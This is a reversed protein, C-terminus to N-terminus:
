VRRRRGTSDAKLVTSVSERRLGVGVADTQVGDGAGAGGFITTGYFAGSKDRLLGSTAGAGDPGGFSHLVVENSGGSRSANAADRAAPLSIGGANCGELALAVCVLSISWLKM